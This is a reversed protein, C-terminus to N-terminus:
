AARSASDRIDEGGAGQVRQMEELSFTHPAPETADLATQSRHRSEQLSEITVLIESELKDLEGIVEDQRAILQNVFDQDKTEARQPVRNEGFFHPGRAIDPSLDPSM